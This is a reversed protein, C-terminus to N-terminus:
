GASLELEPVPEPTPAPEEIETPAGAFLGLAVAEAPLLDIELVGAITRVEPGLRADAVASVQVHGIGGRAKLVASLGDISPVLEVLAPDSLEWSPVGDVAAPNGRVDIPRLFLEVQQTVTMTINM